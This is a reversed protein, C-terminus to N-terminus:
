NVTTRLSEAIASLHPPIERLIGEVEEGDSVWGPIWIEIFASKGEVGSRIRMREAVLQLLQKIRSSVHAPLDYGALTEEDELLLDHSPLTMGEQELSIRTWNQHRGTRAQLYSDASTRLDIILSGQEGPVRLQCEGMMNVRVKGNTQEAIKMFTKRTDSTTYRVMIWAFGYIVLFTATGIPLMFKFFIDLADKAIAISLTM